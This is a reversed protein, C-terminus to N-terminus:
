HCTLPRLFFKKNAIGQLSAGAAGSVAMVPFHLGRGSDFRRVRSQLGSRLWEAVHGDATRSMGSPFPASAIDFGATGSLRIYACEAIFAQILGHPRDGPSQRLRLRDRVPWQRAATSAPQAGSEAGEAL